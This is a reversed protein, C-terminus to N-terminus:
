VQAWPSPEVGCLGVCTTNLPLSSWANTGLDYMLPPITYRLPFVDAPINEEYPVREDLMYTVITCCISRKAFCFNHVFTTVVGPVHQLLKVRQWMGKPTRSLEVFRINEHSDERLEWVGFGQLVIRPSKRFTICVVYGRQQSDFLLPAVYIIRGEHVFFRSCPQNADTRYIFSDFSSTTEGRLSSPMAQPDLEYAVGAEADFGSLRRLTDNMKFLVNCKCVFPWLSTTTITNYSKHYTWVNSESNYVLMRSIIAYHLIVLYGSGTSTTSSMTIQMDRMYHSGQPPVEEPDPLMRFARTLPNIVLVRYRHLLFCVLGNCSAALEEHYYKLVERRLDDHIMKKISPIHQRRSAMLSGHDHIARPTEPFLPMLTRSMSHKNYGCDCARSEVHQIETMFRMQDWTRYSSNLRPKPYVFQSFINERYESTRPTTIGCPSPNVSSYVSVDPPFIVVNPAKRFGRGRGRTSSPGIRPRQSREAQIDQICIKYTYPAGCIQTEPKNRHVNVINFKNYHDVVLIWASSKRAEADPPMADWIRDDELILEKWLRSVGSMRYLDPLPLYSLIKLLVHPLHHVVVEGEGEEEEKEKEKEGGQAGHSHKAYILSRYAAALGHELEQIGDSHMSM